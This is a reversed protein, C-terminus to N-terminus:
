EVVCCKYYVEYAIPLIVVMAVRRLTLDEDSSFDSLTEEGGGTRGFAMCASRIFFLGPGEMGRSTRRFSKPKVTAM